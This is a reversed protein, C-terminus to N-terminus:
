NNMTWDSRRGSAAEDARRLRREAGGPPDNAGLSDRRPSEEWSHPGPAAWGANLATSFQTVIHAGHDTAIVKTVDGMFSRDTSREQIAQSAAKRAMSTSSATTPYRGPESEVRVVQGGRRSSNRPDGRNGVLIGREATDPMRGTCANNRAVKCWVKPVFGSGNWRTLLVAKITPTM